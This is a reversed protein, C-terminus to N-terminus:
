RNLIMSCWFFHCYMIVRQEVDATNQIRRWLSNVRQHLHRTAVPDLFGNERNEHTERNERPRSTASRIWRPDGPMRFSSPLAVYITILSLQFDDRPKGKWAGGKRDIATALALSDSAIEGSNEPSERIRDVEVEIIRSRNRSSVMM